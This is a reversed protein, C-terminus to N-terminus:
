IINRTIRRVSRCKKPGIPTPHLTPNKKLCHSAHTRVLCTDQKTINAFPRATPESLSAPAPHHTATDLPYTPLAPPTRNHSALLYLYRVQVTSRTRQDCGVPFSKPRRRSSGFNNLSRCRRLVHRRRRRV